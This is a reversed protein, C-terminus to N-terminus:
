RVRNLLSKFRTWLPTPLIHICVALGKFGELWCRSDLDRFPVDPVNAGLAVVFMISMTAM